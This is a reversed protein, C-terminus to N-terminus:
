SGGSIYWQTVIVRLNERLDKNITSKSFGAYKAIAALLYNDIHTSFSQHLSCNSKEMPDFITKRLITKVTVGLFYSQESHAVLM